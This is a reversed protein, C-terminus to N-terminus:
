SDCDSFVAHIRPIWKGYMVINPFYNINNLGSLLYVKTGQRGCMILYIFKIMLKIICFTSM